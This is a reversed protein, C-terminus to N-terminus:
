RQPILVPLIQPILAPLILNNKFYAALQQWFSIVFTYESLIHFPTEEKNKCFSCSLTNKM